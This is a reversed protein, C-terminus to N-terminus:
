ALTELITRIRNRTFYDFVDDQGGAKKNFRPLKGYMERFTVLLARELKVWSKVGQRRRCTM